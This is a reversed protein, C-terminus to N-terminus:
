YRTSSNKPIVDELGEEALHRKLKANEIKPEKLQRAESVTMGSYMAQWNYYIARSIGHERRIQAVPMGAYGNKWIAVIQSVHFRTDDNSGGEVYL